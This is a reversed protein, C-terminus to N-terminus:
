SLCPRDHLCALPFSRFFARSAFAFAADGFSHVFPLLLTSRFIRCSSCDGYSKLDFPQDLFCRKLRRSMASSMGFSLATTSGLTPHLSILVLTLRFSTSGLTLRLSTLGLNIRFSTSSFTLRLATPGLTFRLSVLGLTFRLNIRFSTTVLTLCLSKSSLILRFSTLGFTLCFSTSGFTLRVSTSVLTLRLSISGLLFVSRLRDSLSPAFDLRSCSPSLSIVSLSLFLQFM